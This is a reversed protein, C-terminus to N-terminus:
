TERWNQCRRSKMHEGMEEKTTVCKECVGCVYTGSSVVKIVNVERRRNGQTSVVTEDMTGQFLTRATDAIPSFADKAAQHWSKM